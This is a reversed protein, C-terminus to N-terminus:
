TLEHEERDAGRAFVLEGARSGPHALTIRGLIPGHPTALSVVMVPDADAIHRRVKTLMRHGIQGSPQEFRMVPRSELDYAQRDPRVVAGVDASPQLAREVFEDIARREADVVDRPPHLFLLDIDQDIEAAESLVRTRLKERAPRRRDLDVIEAIRA